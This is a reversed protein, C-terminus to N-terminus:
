RVLQNNFGLNVLENFADLVDEPIEQEIQFGLKPYQIMRQLDGVLVNIFTEKDIQDNWHEEYTIEPSTIYLKVQSPNSWQKQFTAFVRREMYPKTVIIISKHPIERKRLLRETFQVNQGTNSAKTELIIKSPDVGMDVAKDRFIEAETKNNTDKTIRGYGGSFVLVKGYGDLMLQASREAVRIDLVGFGAIVDSKHITMNLKMYDLIMKANSDVNM